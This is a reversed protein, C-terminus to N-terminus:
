RKEAALKALLEELVDPWNKGMRRSSLRLQTPGAEAGWGLDTPPKVGERFKLVLQGKEENISDVGARAGLAKLRVMYLLNKVPAPLPGFRDILEAEVDKV